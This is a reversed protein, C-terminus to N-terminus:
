TLGGLWGIVHHAITAPDVVDVRLLTAHGPADTLEVAVTATVPSASTELVLIPVPMVEIMAAATDRDGHGTLGHSLRRDVEGPTPAGHSPEDLMTTRMMTLTSGIQEAPPVFPGGLGDVAVVAAARRGLGILQAAPGSRGFGVVVVDPGIADTGGLAFAPDLAEHNGGILPDDGTRGPHEHVGIPGAWGAARMATVWGEGDLGEVIDSILLLRSALSPATM